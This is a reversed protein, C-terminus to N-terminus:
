WRSGGGGGGGYGGGGGGGGYGGRGGGSERPRSENVTLARGQMDKGNLARIAAEAETANPMEVFGFGRSRGTYRDSVVRAGAVEGFEAFAVRLADEDTEYPLNGVYIDMRREKLLIEEDPALTAHTEGAHVLSRLFRLSEQPETDSNIYGVM